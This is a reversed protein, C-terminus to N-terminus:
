QNTNVNFTYRIQNITLTFTGIAAAKLQHCGDNRKVVQLKDNDSSKISTAEEVIFCDNRRCVITNNTVTLIEGKTFMNTQDSATYIRVVPSKNENNNAPKEKHSANLHNIEEDINEIDENINEIFTYKAIMNKLNELKQKDKKCKEFEGNFWTKYSNSLERKKYIKIEEDEVNELMSYAVDFKHNSLLDNFNEESFQKKEEKKGEEQVEKGKPVEKEGDEGSDITPLYIAGSIVIILVAAGAIVKSINEKIWQLVSSGPEPPPPLLSDQLKKRLNDLKSYISSYEDSVTKLEPQRGIYKDITDLYGNIEDIKASVADISLKDEYGKIIFDKYENEKKELEKIYHIDLLEVFVPKKNNDPKPKCESSLSVWLYSHLAQVIKVGDSDIPLTVVRGEKSNDFSGDIKGITNPMVDKVNKIVIRGIKDCMDRREDFKSICFRGVANGCEIQTIIKDKDDAKLIVEKYVADFLEKMKAPNNCYENDTFVLSMGFFAGERGKSSVLNYILYSYVTDGNPKRNIRMEVGKKGTDYFLQYYLTDEQTGSLINFGDPVGFIYFKPNNM